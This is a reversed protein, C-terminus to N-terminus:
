TYHKQIAVDLADYDLVDVCLEQVSNSYFHISSKSLAGTKVSPLNKFSDVLTNGLFGSAGIVLVNSM